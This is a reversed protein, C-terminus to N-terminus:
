RGSSGDVEDRYARLVEAHRSWPVKRPDPGVVHVVLDRLEQIATRVSKGSRRLDHALCQEANKMDEASVGRGFHALLNNNRLKGFTGDKSTFFSLIAAGGRGIWSRALPNEAAWGQEQDLDGLGSWGVWGTLEVEPLDRRFEGCKSVFWACGLQEAICRLVAVHVSLDREREYACRDLLEHLMHAFGPTSLSINGSTQVVQLQHIDHRLDGLTGSRVATLSRLADQANLACRQRLGRLVRALDEPMRMAKCALEAEVWDQDEIARELRALDRPQIPDELIQTRGGGAHSAYWMRAPRLLCSQAFAMQPTGPGVVVVDRAALTVTKGWRELEAMCVQPDAPNGRIKHISGIQDAPRFRKLYGRLVDSVNVSDKPHPPDQETVILHWTCGAPLRECVEDVIPLRFGAVDEGQLLEAAHTTILTRPSEEWESEGPQAIASALAAVMQRFSARSTGSEDPLRVLTGDARQIQVDSAGFAYVIKM